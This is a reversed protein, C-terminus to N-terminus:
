NPCGARYKALFCTFDAPSLTPLTTSGDCNAYASVQEHYSLGAGARYVALFCTFDAPSLLTVTSGDCNSYCTQPGGVGPWFGSQVTYVGGIMNGTDPQGVTGGLTLDEGRMFTIGGSDITNWQLEPDDPGDTGPETAAPVVAGPDAPEAPDIVGTFGPDEITPEPAPAAPQTQAVAITAAAVGIMLAPGAGRSRFQIKM